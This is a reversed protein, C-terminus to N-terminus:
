EDEKELTLLGLKLAEERDIFHDGEKYWKNLQKKSIPTKEMIINDIKTQMQKTRKLEKEHDDPSGEWNYKITHCMLEGYKGMYREDGFCWLIFGCSEAYGSCNTMITCDWEDKLDQLIDLIALLSALYGGHSSINVYLPRKEDAEYYWLNDAFTRVHEVLKDDFPAIINLTKHNVENMILEMFTGESIQEKEKEVLEEEKVEQEKVEGELKRLIKKM